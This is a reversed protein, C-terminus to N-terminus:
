KKLYGYSFYLWILVSSLWRADAGFPSFLINWVLFISIFVLIPSNIVNNDLFGEFISKLIYVWFAGSLMGGWVLAGMLYSHTPILYSDINEKLAELSLTSSGALDVLKIYGLVYDRNEPWSGHGLFPSDLFAKFSIIVESRGGLLIGWKSQAQVRYKMADEPPLLDLFPQFTFLVSMFSDLLFVVFVFIFFLQFVGFSHSSFYRYVTSKVIVRSFMTILSALLVILALSRSSNILSILIISAMTISMLLLEQSKKYFDIYTFFILSTCLGVGWKWPNSSFYGGQFFVKDILFGLVLGIFFVPFKKLNKYFIRNFGCVVIVVFLPALTGKLAKLIESQNVFDSFFQSLSWLFLLLIVVKQEKYIILNRFNFILILGCLIEGVYVEGFFNFKQSFLLGFIFFLLSILKM